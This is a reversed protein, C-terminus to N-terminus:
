FCFPLGALGEHKWHNNIEKMWLVEFSDPVKCLMGKRFSSVLKLSQGVDYLTSLAVWHTLRWDMTM